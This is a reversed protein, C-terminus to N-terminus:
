SKTKSKSASKSVSPKKIEKKSTTKASSASKRSKASSSVSKRFVMSMKKKGADSTFILKKFLKTYTELAEPDATTGYAVAIDNLDENYINRRLYVIDLLLNIFAEFIHANSENITNGFKANVHVYNIDADTIQLATLFQNCLLMDTLRFTYSSRKVKNLIEHAAARLSEEANQFITELVQIDAQPFRNDPIVVNAGSIRARDQMIAIEKMRNFRAIDKQYKGSSLRALAREDNNYTNYFDKLIFQLSAVPIEGDSTMDSEDFNEGDGDQLIVDLISIDHNYKKIKTLTTKGNNEHKKWHILQTRFDISYLTVPFDRRKLIKRVRFQSASKGEDDKFYNIKTLISFINDGDEKLLIEYQKKGSKTDQIQVINALHEELHHNLVTIKEAIINEIDLLMAEKTMGNDPNLTVINGVYLKTDIDKTFSIDNDYRRMADGGAIFLKIKYKDFLVNNIELIFSNIYPRFNAMFWKDVFDVFADYHKYAYKCITHEIKEVFFTNYSKKRYGFLIKYINLIKIYYNKIANLNAVHTSASHLARPNATQQNIKKFKRLFLSQRYKDINLSMYTTKNATNLYSFTLLGLENLRNVTSYIHLMDPNQARYHAPADIYINKFAQIFWYKNESFRLSSIRDNIQSLETDNILSQTHQSQITSLRDQMYSMNANAQTSHQASEETTQVRVHYYDFNFELLVKNVFLEKVQQLKNIEFNVSARVTGESTRACVTSYSTPATSHYSAEEPIASLDQQQRNPLDVATPKKSRSRSGKPAKAGAIQIDNDILVLKINFYPERFLASTNYIFEFELGEKQVYKYKPNRTLVQTYVNFNETEIKTHIGKANLLQQINLILNMYINTIKEYLVSTSSDNYIYNVDLNTITTSIEELKDINTEHNKKYKQLLHNWSFGGGVWYVYDQAEQETVYLYKLVIDNLSMGETNIAFCQLFQGILVIREITREKIENIKQRIDLQLYQDNM